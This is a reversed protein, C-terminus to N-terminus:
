AAFLSPWQRDIAERQQDIGSRAEDIRQLRARLQAAIERQREIAPVCIRFAKVTPFYV